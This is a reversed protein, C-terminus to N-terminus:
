YQKQFNQKGKGPSVAIWYSGLSADFRRNMPDKRALLLVLRGFGFVLYFIPILLSWTLGASVGNALWRALADFGNMVSKSFLIGSLLLLGLVGIVAGMLLHQFGFFLVGSVALMLLCQFWHRGKPGAEDALRPAGCNPWVSKCVDTIQVSV